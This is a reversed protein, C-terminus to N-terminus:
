VSFLVILFTVDQEYLFVYIVSDALLPGLVQGIRWAAADRNGDGSGPTRVGAWM